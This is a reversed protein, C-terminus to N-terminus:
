KQYRGESRLNNVEGRIDRMERMEYIEGRVESIERSEV